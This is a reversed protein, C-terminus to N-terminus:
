EDPVHKRAGILTYLVPVARGDVRWRYRGDTEIELRDVRLDCSISTHERLQMVRLGATDAAFLIDELTHNYQVQPGTRSTTAYDWGSEIFRRVPRARVIELPGFKIGRSTPHGLRFGGDMDVRGAFLYLGRGNSRELVQENTDAATEYLTNDQVPQLLTTQLALAAAPLIAPLLAAVYKIKLVM